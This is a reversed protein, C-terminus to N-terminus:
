PQIWKGWFSSFYDNSAVKTGAEEAYASFKVVDGVALRLTVSGSFGAVGNDLNNYGRGVVWQASNVTIASIRKKDALTTTADGVICIGGLTFVGARRATFTKDATTSGGLSSGYDFGVTNLVNAILPDFAATDLTQQSTAGNGSQYVSFAYRDMGTASEVVWASNATVCRLIVTEGTIFLRSWEAAASGGNITDGTNPKIILEYSANGATVMIGIRDGAKATAPLTYTRDATAWGSMDVVYMQGVAMTTDADTGTVNHLYASQAAVAGWGCFVTHTGSSLTIASGSNSSALITTRALTDPTADTVTGIGVEWGTGNADEIVYPCTNGNGIGAVFGQFGTPVTSLDLTGTGTTTTLQKVRDAVVFAM